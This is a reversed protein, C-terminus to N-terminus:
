IHARQLRNVEHRSKMVAKVTHKYERYCACCSSESFTRDELFPLEDFRAEKKLLLLGVEEASAVSPLDLRTM